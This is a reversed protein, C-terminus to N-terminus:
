KKFFEIESEEDVVYVDGDLRAIGPKLINIGQDVFPVNMLYKSINSVPEITIDRYKLITAIRSKIANEDIKFDYRGDNRRTFKYLSEGVVYHDQKSVKNFTGNKNPNAFWFIETPATDTKKPEDNPKAGFNLKPEDNPKDVVDTESSQKTIPTQQRNVPADEQLNELWKNILWYKDNLIFLNLAMIIASKDKDNLEEIETNEFKDKIDPNKKFFDSEADILLHHIIKDICKKRFKNLDKTFEENGEKDIHLNKKLSNIYDNKPDYINDIDKLIWKLLNPSENDQISKMRKERDEDSLSKSISTFKDYSSVATKNNIDDDTKAVGFKMKDKFSSTKTDQFDIQKSQNYGVDDTKTQAQPQPQVQSQSVRKLNDDEADRQVDRNLRDEISKLFDEREKNYRTFMVLPGEVSKYNYNIIEAGEIKGSNIINYLVKYPSETYDSLLSLFIFGPTDSTENYDYSPNEDLFDYIKLLIFDTDYEYDRFDVNKKNLFSFFNSIPNSDENLHTQNSDYIRRRYRRQNYTPTKRPKRRTYSIYDDWDYRKSYSYSPRNGKVIEDTNNILLVDGSWRKGNIRFIDIDDTEKNIRKVVKRIKEPTTVISQSIRELSCIGPLAYKTDYSYEPNNNIFIEMRSVIEIVEKDGLGTLFDFFSEHVNSYRM